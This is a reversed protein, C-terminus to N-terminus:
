FPDTRKTFKRGMDAAPSDGGTCIMTGDKIMNIVYSDSKPDDSCSNLFMTKSAKTAALVRSRVAQMAEVGVGGKYTGPRGLIFFGHDGPGWEAFSIGPVRVSAEVNADARPNEIKLGFLLEGDPNMPWPEAIRLYEQATVGWMRSAYGQSGNGRTGQALGDVRPAFPYRSAEIMLRAAEPSEANCLLIGHVGAALTQQIMWANARVADTTGSIPLTVIVAPTKHGTRTPGAEVLGRMFEQLEKFDLPGHEMEYTIYDAKTAAMEKGKEYGGGSIQAYYVPQGKMWMDIIRNVHKGNRTTQNPMEPITANPPQSPQQASASLGTLLAAAMGALFITKMKM